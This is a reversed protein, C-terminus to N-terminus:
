DDGQGTSTKRIKDYRKISDNIPQDYFYRGDIEINYNEITVRPLFYKKLSDVSVKNVGTTNDLALVFLRKAIQYSSDLLERIQKEENDDAIEVVKNDIIKYKNLYVSRKSGESLQKTLKPNDETSLTVVPVFLKPDSIIFTASEAGTANADTQAETLVCNEIWNLTLEVKCDILPMELLRWFPMAIPIAIELGNKTGNKETNGIISTEYKFSPANNDNSVNANNTVEDRKFSWLIGSTDSYNDSYEVLNHVPM